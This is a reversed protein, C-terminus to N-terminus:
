PAGFYFPSPLLVITAIILIILVAVQVPISWLLIRTTIKSGVPAAVLLSAILGVGILTWAYTSSGSLGEIFPGVAFLFILVAIVEFLLWTLLLWLPWRLWPNNSSSNVSDQMPM